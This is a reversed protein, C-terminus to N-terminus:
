RRQNHVLHGWAGAPLPAGQARKSQHANCRTCTSPSDCTTCTSSSANPVRKAMPLRLVSIAL